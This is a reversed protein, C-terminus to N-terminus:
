TGGPRDADKENKRRDNNAVLASVSGTTNIISDSISIVSQSESLAAYSKSEVKVNSANIEGQDVAHLASGWGTGNVANVTLVGGTLEITGKTSGNYSSSTGNGGAQVAHAGDGNTTINANSTIHGGNQAMLGYGRKGQTTISGGNVEISSNKGTANAGFTQDAESEVVISVNNAVISGGNNSELGHARNGRTTISGGNITIEGGWEASAGRANSGSTSVVTDTVTLAGGAS